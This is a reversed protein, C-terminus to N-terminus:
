PAEDPTHDTPSKLVRVFLVIATLTFSPLTAGLGLVAIIFYSGYGAYLESSKITVGDGVRGIVSALSFIAQSTGFVGILSPLLTIALYVALIPTRKALVSLICAGIFLVVGLFMLVPFYNGSNIVSYKFLSMSELDKAFLPM